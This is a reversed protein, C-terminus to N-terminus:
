RLALRRESQHHRKQFRRTRYHHEVQDPRSQGRLLLANGDRSGAQVGFEKLFVSRPVKGYEDMKQNSDTTLPTLWFPDTSTKGYGSPPKQVFINGGADLSGHWYWGSINEVPAAKVPMQDAALGATGPLMALLMASGLLAAARSALINRRVKM